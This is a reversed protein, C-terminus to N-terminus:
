SGDDGRAAEGNLARGATEYLADACRKYARAAATARTAREGGSVSRAAIAYLRVAEDDWEAALRQPAQVAALLSAIRAPTFYEWYTEAAPGGCATFDPKRDPIRCAFQLGDAIRKAKALEAGPDDAM